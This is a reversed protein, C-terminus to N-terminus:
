QVTLTGVMGAKYHGEVNCLMIYRGAPLTVTVNKTQGPGVDPIEGPLVSEPFAAEDVDTGKLPLASTALDTRILVLEHTVKGNNPATITIAGAPAAADKPTFAFETMTITLKTAEAAGTSTTTATTETSQTAPETTAGTSSSGGSGGCAAFSLAAAALIALPAARIIHRRM